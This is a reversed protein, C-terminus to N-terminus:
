ESSVCNPSPDRESHAGQSPQSVDILSSYSAFQASFYAIEAKVHPLYVNFEYNQTTSDLCNFRTALFISAYFVLNQSHYARFLKTWHDFRQFRWRSLLNITQSSEFRVRFEIAFDVLSVCTAFNDSRILTLSQSDSRVFELFVWLDSWCPLYQKPHIM